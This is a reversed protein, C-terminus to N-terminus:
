EKDEEDEFSDCYEGLADLFGYEIDTLDEDEDIRNHLEEALEFVMDMLNSFAQYGPDENSIEDIRDRKGMFEKYEGCYGIENIKLSNLSPRRSDYCQDSCFGAIIHEDTQTDKVHGTYMIAKKGCVICNVTDKYEM